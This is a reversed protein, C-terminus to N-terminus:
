VGAGTTSGFATGIKVSPVRAWTEAMIPEIEAVMSMSVPAETAETLAETACASRALPSAM